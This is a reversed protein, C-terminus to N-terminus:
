RSLILEFINRIREFILQIFDQLNVYNNGKLVTETDVNGCVTCTRHRIRCNSEASDEFISWEGYEHLGTAPIANEAMIKQCQSCQVVTCGNHGCDAPKEITEVQHNCETLANVYLSGYGQKYVDSMGGSSSTSYYSEKSTFVYQADSGDKNVELPIDIKTGDSTSVKLLVSFYSGKELTVKSPLDITNYGARDLTETYTLSLTGSTPSTYNVPLNTYIQVTVTVASTKTTFAVADLFEYEDACYVNAVRGGSPIPLFSSSYCANHTYIKYFDDAPRVEFGTFESVTADEYSLWFYGNKRSDEGWSDKILWAGNSTPQANASFNSAIYNDDWGVVSVLHNTSSSSPCYYAGYYSNYYTNKYYIATTCSGHEMLWQKIDSSGNLCVVNDIILGSSHNYRNEEGYNGMESISYPHFPFDSENAIGIGQSLTSTARLWNGGYSYPSTASINGGEGNNPNNEDNIVSYTFWTLHAESFDATEATYYGKSIADSELANTIGFAWCSGSNGQDKVPTVLGYDRSDYASPLNDIGKQLGYDATLCFSDSYQMEPESVSIYGSDSPVSDDVTIPELINEVSYAPIYLLLPIMLALFVSLIKKM